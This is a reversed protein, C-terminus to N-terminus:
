VALPWQGCKPDIAAKMYGTLAGLSGAELAKETFKYPGHTDEMWEAWEITAESDMGIQWLNRAWYSEVELDPDPRGSQPLLVLAGEWGHAAWWLRTVEHDPMNSWSECDRGLIVKGWALRAERLQNDTWPRKADVPEWLKLLYVSKAWM